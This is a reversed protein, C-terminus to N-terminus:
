NIKGILKLHEIINENYKELLYKLVFSYVEDKLKDIDKYEIECINCDRSDYITVKNEETEINTDCIQLYFDSMFESGAYDLYGDIDNIIKYAIGDNLYTDINIKSKMNDTKGLLHNIYDIYDQKSYLIPM